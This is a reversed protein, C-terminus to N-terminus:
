CCTRLCDTRLNRIQSIWTGDDGEWAQHLSQSSQTVAVYHIGSRSLRKGKELRSPCSLTNLSIHICLWEPLPFTPSSYEDARETRIPFLLHTLDTVWERSFHEVDNAVLSICIAPALSAIILFVYINSLIHLFQFGQVSNTSHFSTCSCQFVTQCNRLCSFMSSKGHM